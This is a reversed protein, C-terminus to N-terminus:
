PEPKPDWEESPQNEDGNCEFNSKMEAVFIRTRISKFKLWGRLKEDMM